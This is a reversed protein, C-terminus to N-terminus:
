WMLLKFSKNELEDKERLERGVGSVFGEKSKKQKRRIEGDGYFFRYKFRM